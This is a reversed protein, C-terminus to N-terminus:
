LFGRIFLKIPAVLHSLAEISLIRKQLESGSVPVSLISPRPRFLSCRAFQTEVDKSVVARTVVPCFQDSLQGLVRVEEDM